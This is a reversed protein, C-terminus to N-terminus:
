VPSRWGDPGSDVPLVAVVAHLPLPAYLHPFGGEVRIEGAAAPDVVLLVLPGPLGAYYRRLTGAVQDARSLHVFGEDAYSM